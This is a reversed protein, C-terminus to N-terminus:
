LGNSDSAAGSESADIFVDMQQGVFFATDSSEIRYIVQLVRTDVRETSAGTLSQKPVVMPELRLFRASARLSTNGRAQVVVAAGPRVRWAETEDIDARVNLASVDGLVMWPNTPPGASVFEGPRVRLQLVRGTIPATVTSRELDTQVAHLAAEAAEVGAQATKIEAESVQVEATAIEVASRRRTLEEASVSRPDTVSEAFKLNRQVEALQARTKRAHATAAAVAAVRTRVDSQREALAAELSRTDLKVLPDGRKVDQGARVMVKEIVGPLHSAISINESCPEVLGVGVVQQEFESQPPAAPPENASRRPHTRIVSFTALLLVVVAAIPLGIRKM